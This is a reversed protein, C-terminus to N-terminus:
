SLFHYHFNVLTIYFHSLMHIIQSFFSIQQIVLYIIWLSNVFIFLEGLHFGSVVCCTINNKNTVLLFIHLYCLGDHMSMLISYFLLTTQWQHYAFYLAWQLFSNWFIVINSCFYKISTINIQWSMVLSAVTSSFHSFTTAFRVKFYTFM